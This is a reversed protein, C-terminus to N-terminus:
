LPSNLLSFRTYGINGTGEEVIIRLISLGCGTGYEPTAAETCYVKEFHPNLVLFFLLKQVDHDKIKRNALLHECVFCQPKVTRAWGHKMKASHTLM